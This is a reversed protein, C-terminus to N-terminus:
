TGCLLLRGGGKRSSLVSVWPRSSTFCLRRLLCCALYLSLLVGLSKRVRPSRSLCRTSSCCRALTRTTLSAWVASSLLSTWRALQVLLAGGVLLYPNIDRCVRATGCVMVARFLLTAAGFHLCHEAIWVCWMIVLRGSSAAPDSVALIVC